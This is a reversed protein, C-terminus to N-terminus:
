LFSHLDGWKLDFYAEAIYPFKMEFEQMYRLASNSGHKATEHCFERFSMKKFFSPQNCWRAITVYMGYHPSLKYDQYRMVYPLCRFLM